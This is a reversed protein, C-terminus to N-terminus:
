KKEKRIEARQAEEKSRGLEDIGCELMFHFRFSVEQIFFAAFFSQPVALGDQVIVLVQGIAVPAMEVWVSVLRVVTGFRGGEGQGVDDWLEYFEVASGPVVVLLGGHQLHGLSALLGKRQHACHWSVGVYSSPPDVPGAMHPRCGAAHYVVIMKSGPADKGPIVLVHHLLESQALQLSLECLQIIYVMDREKM